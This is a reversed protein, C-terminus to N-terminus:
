CRGFGNGDLSGGQAGEEQGSLHDGQAGGQGVTRDGQAGDGTLHVAQSRGDCAHRGGPAFTLEKRLDTDVKRIEKKIDGVPDIKGISEVSKRLDTDVKRIEKKVDGVPDIKGISEVSKKVDDLESERLADNVQNQFGRAMRKLQGVYNGVSRMAKPLDKPSIVLVAVGAILMLETWGLDLM